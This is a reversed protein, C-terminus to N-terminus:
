FVFGTNYEFYGDVDSCSFRQRSRLQASTSNKRWQRPYCHRTDMHVLPSLVYPRMVMEPDPVEKGNVVIPENGWSVIDIDLLRPAWKNQSHKEYRSQIQKTAQYFSDASHPFSGQVVLNLFPRNWKAPSNPPLDAPTQVVASVQNISYGIARLEQLGSTLNQKRDGRNTGLSLISEVQRAM